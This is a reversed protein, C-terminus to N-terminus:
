EMVPPPAQFVDRYSAYVAGVTVPVLILYGLMMPLAALMALLMWLVGFVLLPMFNVTCATVSAKFADVPPTDTFMVLPVAYLMSMTWLLSILSNILLALLLGMGAGAMMLQNGGHGMLGAVGLSGGMLLLAIASMVLNVIVSGAGLVLVANRREVEKFAIILQGLDLARGEEAERASYLLGGFLGPVVLALLLPGVPPILAPVLMIIGTVLTLVLWMGPEAMFIRWGDGLWAVGKGADLRQAKM